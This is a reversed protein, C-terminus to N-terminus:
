IKVSKSDKGDLLHAPNGVLVSGSDFISKLVNASSGILTNCAITVDDKITSHLGFFCNDEVKSFGGFVANTSLFNFDGIENDHSLVVSSALYNGKGMKCGPGVVVGPAIFCGDQIDDTYVIANASIYTAVKYGKSVCLDYVKKKLQNMKTYGIGLVIQFNTNLTELEEFALVHLGQLESKSIFDREQTFAIVKDRGEFTIYKYLREAFPTDGFIILNRM